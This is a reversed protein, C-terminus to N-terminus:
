RLRRRIRRWAGRMLIYAAFCAFVTFVLGAGLWFAQGFRSTEIALIRNLLGPPQEADGSAVGAAGLDGGAVTPLPSPTPFPTLTPLIGGSARRTAELESASPLTPAVPLTTTLTGTPSPTATVNAILIENAYFEDYNYDARVVRLRLRYLGDPFVPSVPQGVTTDWVALTDDQVPQDGQAFVIWDSGPSSAQIFALEYRLFQPHVATGKVVVIGSVTDGDAPEYIGNGTQAYIGRALALSLGAVVVLLSITRPLGEKMRYPITVDPCLKTPGLCWVTFDLVFGWDRRVGRLSM